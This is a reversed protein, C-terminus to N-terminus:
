KKSQLHNEFIIKWEIHLENMKTEIQVATETSDSITKILKDNAWYGVQFITEEKNYFQRVGIGNRKDNTFEGTYSWILDNFVYSSNGTWGSFIYQIKGSGNRKGNKWDGIYEYYKWTGDPYRGENTETRGWILRGLGEFEGKYFEGVYRQGEFTQIGFGNECDGSVCEQCIGIM